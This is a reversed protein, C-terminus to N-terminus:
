STVEGAAVAIAQGTIASADASCLWVVTAAVEHPTVLTGRPSPRTLLARAEDESRGTGERINKVADALMTTGETYGPCVANVTIGHRATEIALARTFGVVGHKAACYAAVRAFGKLGAVSAVSVIRGGRRRTMAPLVRQACLFAGTLNVAITREWTDLTLDQVPAATSYGANNVLITVDGLHATADAFADDVSAANTVDCVVPRIRVGMAGLAAAQTELHAATRAMLTVDAGQAALLTAIAGGIGRSGGTVVAHQGSLPRANAPTSM